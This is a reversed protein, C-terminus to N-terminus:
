YAFQWEVLQRPGEYMYTCRSYGSPPYSQCFFELYKLWCHQAMYIPERDFFTAAHLNRRLTFTFLWFCKLYSDCIFISSSNSIPFYGFLIHYIGPHICQFLACPLVEIIEQERLLLPWLCVTCGYGDAIWYENWKTVLFLINISRVQVCHDPSFAFLTSGSWVAGIPAAQVPDVRNAFAHFPM